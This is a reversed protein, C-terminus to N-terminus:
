IEVKKSATDENAKRVPVLLPHNVNENLFYTHNPVALLSSGDLKQISGLVVPVEGIYKFKKTAM